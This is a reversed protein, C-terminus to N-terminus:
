RHQARDVPQMDAASINEQWAHVLPASGKSQVGILRPIREIWGLERLEYFGKHLGGIISGDGVSVIV